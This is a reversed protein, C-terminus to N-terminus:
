VDEDEDSVMELPSRIEIQPYGKLVNVGNYKHIRDFNVIHRFNWSVIVDARAVTAAAVHGADARHSEGVIGADIYAQALSAVEEDIAVDMLREAPIRELVKRVPEPAEALEDITLQSVMVLIKGASVMGFFAGSAKKYEEDQTGGFVSTDVYARIRHM